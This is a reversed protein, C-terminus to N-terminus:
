IPSTDLEGPDDQAKAHGGIVAELDDIFRTLGPAKDGQRHLIVRRVRLYRALGRLRSLRAANIRTM